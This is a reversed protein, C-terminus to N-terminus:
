KWYKNLRQVHVAVSCMRVDHQYTNRLPLTIQSSVSVICFWWTARTVRFQVNKHSDNVSPLVLIVSKALGKKKKKKYISLINLNAVVQFILYFCIM